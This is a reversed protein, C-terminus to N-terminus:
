RESSLILFSDTREEVLLKGLIKEPNESIKKLLMFDKFERQSEPFPEIKPRRLLIGLEAGVVFSLFGVSSLFGFDFIGFSSTRADGLITVL